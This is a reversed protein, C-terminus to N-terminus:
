DFARNFRLAIDRLRDLPENAYVLRLFGATEDLGWNEMSTAAVGEVMLRRSAEAGSIGRSRFNILLSWGGHAPIVDFQPRLATVLLDHRAQWTAACSAIGDDGTELAVAVAQQAIGVPCVVNSIAVRGIVEAAALPCLVWGVRWGIMRYEKSAAGVTVTRETMGPFQLPNLRPADKFLIREMASDYIMWANAQICADCVAKWEERNFVAGTPMSPSMMLFARTKPSLADQLSQLDLRWGTPGPLMRAYRPVGGALKVRNILGVYTPSTLVVEDGPDILALLANLIGNLGGASIFCQRRWDYHEIRLGGNREVLRTAARRLRDHGFFPLYSNADDNNVESVTLELAPLPPLLDTDLNELRLVHPNRLADAADGMREVGISTMLATRRALAPTASLPM